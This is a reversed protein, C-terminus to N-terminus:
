NKNYFTRTVSNENATAGSGLSRKIKIGYYYDEQTYPVHCLSDSLNNPCTKALM